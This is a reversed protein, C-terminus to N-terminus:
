KRGLGTKMAVRGLDRQLICYRRLFSADRRASIALQGRKSIMLAWVYVSAVVLLAVIAKGFLDSYRFASLITNM